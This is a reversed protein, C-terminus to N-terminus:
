QDWSMPRTDRHWPKQLRLVNAVSRNPNFFIRVFRKMGDSRGDELKQIWHKDVADEAVIWGLGGVPTMVLDVAGATGRVKGVHGITAESVPGLEFQTSYFAAWGMARLRSNWYKMDNVDFEKGIGKPDNQIFVWGAIAGMMPHGVYNTLVSDGDGWGGLGDVANAWEEFFKGQFERRTKKQVIRVSHQISLFLFSQTSVGKWDISQPKIEFQQPVPALLPDIPRPVALSSDFAASPLDADAPTKSTSTATGAPVDGAFNTRVIPGSLDATEAAAPYRSEQAAACVCLWLTVILFHRILEEEFSLV